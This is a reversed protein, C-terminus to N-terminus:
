YSGAMREHLEVVAAISEFLDTQAFKPLHHLCDSIFTQLNAM